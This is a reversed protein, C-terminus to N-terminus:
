KSNDKETKPQSWMLDAIIAAFLWLSLRLPVVGGMVHRLVSRMEGVFGYMYFLMSIGYLWLGVWAWILTERRRQKLAFVLIILVLLGDFIMPLPHTPHLYDAYPVLWAPRGSDAQFFYPQLNTSWLENTDDWAMKIFAVPHSVVFNTYATLGSKHTWKAFDSTSPLAELQQSFRYTLITDNVPMGYKQFYEVRSPYPFIARTVNNYFPVVWRESDRFSVQQFVFLGTTVVAFLIVPALYDKWRRWTLAGLGAIFLLTFPVFYVNTDRLFIWFPSIIMLTM